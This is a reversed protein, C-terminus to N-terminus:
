IRDHISLSDDFLSGWNGIMDEEFYNQKMEEFFDEAPMTKGGFSSLYPNYLQCDIYKFDYKALHLALSILGFRSANNAVSFMSEGTFIKGVAIGYLGGVLLDGQWVEVSHAYGKKFLKDYMYIFEDSIWTGGEQKRKVHRCSLIVKDFAQDFTVTFKNQNFYSRISKPIKIIRPDIVYREQPFFYAAVKGFNEWPFIGFRYYSLLIDVDMMDMWAIFGHQNAYELPHPIIGLTNSFISQDVPKAM